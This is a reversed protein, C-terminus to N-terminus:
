FQLLLTYGSLPSVFIFKFFLDILLNISKYKDVFTRKSVIKRGCTNTQSQGPILVVFDRQLYASRDLPLQMLSDPVM